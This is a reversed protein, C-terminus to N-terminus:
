GQFAWTGSGEAVKSASSYKVTLTEITGHGTYRFKRGARAAGFVKVIDDRDLIVTETDNVLEGAEQSDKKPALQYNKCEYFVKHFVQPTVPVTFQVRLIGEWKICSKMEDSAAKLFHSTQTKFTKRDPEESAAASASRKRNGAQKRYGGSPPQNKPTQSEQTSAMAELNSLKRKLHNIIVEKAELEEAQERCIQALESM